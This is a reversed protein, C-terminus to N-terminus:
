PYSVDWFSNGFVPDVDYTGNEDKVEIQSGEDINGNRSVYTFFSEYTGGDSELLVFVQNGREDATNGTISGATKFFTGGILYNVSVGGGFGGYAFDSSSTSGTATNNEITGGEMNFTGQYVMVGGGGGLHGWSTGTDQVVNGSITGGEMIFTGGNVVGVGGGGLNNGGTKKSTNDRIAAGAKMRFVGGSVMVGGGANNEDSNGVNTNGTIVAGTDLILVGKTGGDGTVRVLPATNDALGQFTVNKLTLEVGSGVTILTGAV